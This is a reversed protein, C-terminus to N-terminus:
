LHEVARLQGGQGVPRDWPRWTRRGALSTPHQAETLLRNVKEIQDAPIREIAEKGRWLEYSGMKWSSTTWSWTKFGVNMVSIFRTGAM